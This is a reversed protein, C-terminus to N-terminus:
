PSARSCRIRCRGGRACQDLGHEPVILQKKEIGTPVAQLATRLAPRLSRSSKVPELGPPLLSGKSRRLCHHATSHHSSQSQRLLRALQSVRALIKGIREALAPAFERSWPSHRRGPVDSRVLGGADTVPGVSLDFSRNRL